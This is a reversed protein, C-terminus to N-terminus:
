ILEYYKHVTLKSGYPGTWSLFCMGPGPVVEYSILLVQVLVQVRTEFIVILRNEFVALEPSPASQGAFKIHPSLGVEPSCFLIVLFKLKLTFLKKRVVAFTMKSCLSRKSFRDLWEIKVKMCFGKLVPKLSGNLFKKRLIDNWFHRIRFRYCFSTLLHWKSVWLTVTKADSM